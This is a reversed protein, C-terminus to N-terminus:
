NNIGCYPKYIETSCIKELILLSNRVDPVIDNVDGLTRSAESSIYLLLVLSSVDVGINFITLSNKRLFTYCRSGFRYLLNPKPPSKNFFEVQSVYSSTVKEDTNM